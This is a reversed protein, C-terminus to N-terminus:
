LRTVMVSLSKKYNDRSWCSQLFLTNSIFYKKQNEAVNRRVYTEVCSYNLHYQLLYERSTGTRQAQRKHFFFDYNPPKSIEARQLAELVKAANSKM